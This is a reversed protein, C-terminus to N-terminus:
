VTIAPFAANSARGVVHKGVVPVGGVTGSATEAVSWTVKPVGAPIRGYVEREYDEVIQSRREKWWMHASGVTRGDKLTLVGPFDPDPNALAEDYNAANPASETGSPGPRLARIGLQEMMHRHDEESTWERADALATDQAQAALPGYSAVPALTLLFALWGRGM